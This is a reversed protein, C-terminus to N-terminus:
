GGLRRGVGWGGRWTEGPSMSSKRPGASLRKETLACSCMCRMMGRSPGSCLSCCVGAGLGLGM